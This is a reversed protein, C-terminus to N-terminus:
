ALQERHPAFNLACRRIFDDMKTMDFRNAKENGPKLQEQSPFIGYGALLCHWSAPPYYNGIGQREIEQTLNDGALWCNIIGKLSDSLHQNRSNAVWYETDTRSNVRYHCVIYDRIAEFRKNISANFAKKNKDTFNGGEFAEIFGQVTEQVLHLATAELPEIFGQSLGVAVCNKHWHRELRGVKMKLHRAEVESDLLGLKQRLETEAQDASCFNSSYVYGNGTRNTLPIDWAWGYKLATSITHANLKETRPSPIAVARDNFLNNAFSIFPVKLNKQMLVGAFGSCDVFLTAELKRGSETYLSAIDGSPALEVETVRNEIHVVGREIAKKRLFRGVLTADFHYGYGVEFPFNHNAKPGLQHEALYAALFFRNPHAYIDAGKRRVYSNFFFAPASHDDTQAPFPHFYSEFGPKTSWHEFSIGTKYTANCVPMWENEEIGLHDFFAKLQPTSGEGVGIIGIDPSELLTIDIAKNQWNSAMLNAAIWGATGGGLIVIKTRNQNNM